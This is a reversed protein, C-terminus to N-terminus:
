RKVLTSPNTVEQFNSTVHILRNGSVRFQNELEPCIVYDNEGVAKIYWKGEKKHTGYIYVFTGDSKLTLTDGYQGVYTGAVSSSGECGACLTMAVGIM